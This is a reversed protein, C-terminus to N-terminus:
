VGRNLADRKALLEDLRGPKKVEEEVHKSLQVKVSEAVADVAKSLTMLAEMTDVGELDVDPYKASFAAKAEELEQAKMTEIHSALEDREASVSSLEAKTSELEQELSEIRGMLESVNIEESLDDVEMSETQSENLEVTACAGDDSSGGINISLKVSGVGCGMDVGCRGENVLSLHEFGWGSGAYVPQGDVYEGEIPSLETVGMAVSVDHSDVDATFRVGDGDRVADTIVGLKSPNQHDISSVFEVGKLAKAIEDLDEERIRLYRGDNTSYVGAKIAVGDVIMM